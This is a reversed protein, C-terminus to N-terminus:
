RGLGQALYGATRALRAGQLRAAELAVDDPSASSRSVFSAGYPNGSVKMVHRDAYGLPM